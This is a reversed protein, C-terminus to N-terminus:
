TVHWRADPGGSKQTGRLKGWIGDAADASWTRYRAEGSATIRRGPHPRTKHDRPLDASQADGMRRVATQGGEAAGMDRRRLGGSPVRLSSTYRRKKKVLVEERAIESKKQRLPPGVQM